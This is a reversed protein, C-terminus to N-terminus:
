DRGDGKRETGAFAETVAEYALSRLCKRAEVPAMDGPPYLLPGFHVTVDMRGLGAFKWFHPALPVAGHWAAYAALGGPYRIGAPRVPANRRVAIDFFASKFPRVATGDSTTGEPFVVVTVGTEMRQELQRMAGLAARKSNRNVFVVGALSALWGFLPWGRVEHNSLFVTPRLSGMVFIDAYGAHNCVTFGGGKKRRGGKRVRIGFILCSAKAWVMTMWAQAVARLRAAPLLALNVLVGVALSALNLAIFAVIRILKLLV